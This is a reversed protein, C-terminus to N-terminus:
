GLNFQDIFIKAQNSLRVGKSYVVAIEYEFHPISISNVRITPYRENAIIYDPFFGVGINKETFRAVVEWGGLAAEIKLPINMFNLFYEQLENVFMGEKEDVLIGREILYLPTNTNQYLHFRGKQLSHKNYGAFTADFVVVAFEVDNVALANKIYKLNGLHVKMEVNPVNEQMRKYSSAIFSMGLSNTCAFKLTGKLEDKSFKFKEEIENITNFIHRAQEFLIKGEPTLQFKQRPKAILDVKLIKELKAIGQSITSQTVFNNRAGETISNCAVSDCFFKLHALNILPNM